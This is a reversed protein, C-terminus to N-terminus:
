LIGAIADPQALVDLVDVARDYESLRADHSQLADDRLAPITAVVRSAASLPDLDLVHRVWSDLARHQDCQALSHPLSSRDRPHSDLSLLESEDLRAWNTAGTVTIM